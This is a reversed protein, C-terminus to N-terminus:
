RSLDPVTVHRGILDMGGQTFTERPKQYRCWVKRDLSAITAHLEKAISGRDEVERYFKFGTALGGRRGDCHKYSFRFNDRICKHASKSLPETFGSNFITQQFVLMRLTPQKTPCRFIM